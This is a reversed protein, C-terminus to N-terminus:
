SVARDVADRLTPWRSRSAQSVKARGKCCGHRGHGIWQRRLGINGVPTLSEGRPGISVDGDLVRHMQSPAGIDVMRSNVRHVAEILITVSGQYNIAWYHNIKCPDAYVSDDIEGAVRKCVGTIDRGIEHDIISSRVSDFYASAAVSVPNNICRVRGERELTARVKIALGNPIRDVIMATCTEIPVQGDVRRRRRRSGELLDGKSLQGVLNETALQSTPKMVVPSQRM